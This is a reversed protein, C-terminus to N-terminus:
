EGVIERLVTEVCDIKAGPAFGHGLNFIYGPKDGAAHLVSKTAKKAMETSGHLLSPDLNGQFCFKEGYLRRNEALNDRWDLSMAQIDLTRM